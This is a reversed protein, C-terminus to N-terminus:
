QRRSTDGRKSTDAQRRSGSNSNLSDRSNAKSRQGISDPYKGTTDIVNTGYGTTDGPTGSSGMPSNTGVGSVSTDSITDTDTNGSDGCSAFFISVMAMLIMKKM